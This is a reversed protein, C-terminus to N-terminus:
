LYEALSLSQQEDIKGIYKMLMNPTSHGTAVMLLPTPIKGFNLSAFTRRGQHSTVLKYKPYYGVVKRRNNKKRKEIQKSQVEKIALSGFVVDDIGALECVKKIHRNYRTASMKRPFSWDRKKLLEIIKSHLPLLLQKGTKVQTFEIFHRQVGKVDKLIIQDVNFNMFDSIRQGCYCSVVLWDKATELHIDSFSSKELLDLEEQTFIEFTTKETKCKIRSLGSYIQYGNEQAHYLITKIFKFNREFYNISYKEVQLCFREFDIKFNTDIDLINLEKINRNDKYRKIIAKISNVKTIYAKSIDTGKYKLFTDCYSLFCYDPASENNLEPYVINKLWHKDIIKNDSKYNDEISRKLDFLRNNVKENEKIKIKTEADRKSVLRGKKFSSYAELLRQNTLDWDEINVTEKTAISLDIDRGIRVRIHIKHKVKKQSKRIFFKVRM